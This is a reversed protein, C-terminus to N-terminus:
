TPGAAPHGALVGPSTNRRRTRSFSFATLRLLERQHLERIWIALSALACDDLETGSRTLGSFDGVVEFRVIESQGGGLRM